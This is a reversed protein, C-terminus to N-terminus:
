TKLNIIKLPLVMSSTIFQPLDKVLTCHLRELASPIENKKQGHEM